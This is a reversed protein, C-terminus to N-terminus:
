ASVEVRLILQLNNSFDVIRDSERNLIGFVVLMWSAPLLPPLPCVLNKYKYRECIEIILFSHRMPYLRKKM